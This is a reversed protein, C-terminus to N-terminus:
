RVGRAVSEHVERRECGRVCTPVDPTRRGGNRSQVWKGDLALLKIAEIVAFAVVVKLVQASDSDGTWETPFKAAAVLPVALIAGAPVVYRFWTFEFYSVSSEPHEDLRNEAVWRFAFATTWLVVLLLGIGMPWGLLAQEESRVALYAVAVLISVILLALAHQVEEKLGM